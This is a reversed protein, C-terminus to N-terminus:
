WSCFLSPATHTGAMTRSANWYKKDHCYVINEYDFADACSLIKSIQPQLVNFTILRLEDNQMNAGFHCTHGLNIWDGKLNIM